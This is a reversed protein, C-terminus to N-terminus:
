MGRRKLKNNIDSAVLGPIKKELERNNEVIVEAIKNFLDESNIDEVEKLKNLIADKTLGIAM